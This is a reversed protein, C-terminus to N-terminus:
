FAYEKPSNIGGFNECMLVFVYLLFIEAMYHTTTLLDSVVLIDM